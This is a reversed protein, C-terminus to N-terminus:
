HDRLHPTTAEDARWQMPEKYVYEAVDKLDPEPSAAAFEAADAAVAKAEKDWSKVEEETAWGEALLTTVGMVIPDRTKFDDVENKTRYKAPDSMSHGRYRYCQAEILTPRNDNRARDAAEGICTWMAAVDMGDVVVGPMNFGAAKSALDVTASARELSTGMAYKNNEIVYIVPLDWLSALNLSEYFAGQNMAGEGLFCITVEGREEYRSAFGMGTALPVHGGVIGHGGHFNNHAAFMHM